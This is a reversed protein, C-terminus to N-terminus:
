RAGSDVLSPLADPSALWRWLHRFNGTNVVDATRPYVEVAIANEGWVLTKIHQLEDWTVMGNHAVEIRDLDTDLWVARVNGLPVGINVRMM